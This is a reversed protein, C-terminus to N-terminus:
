NWRSEPRGKMKALLLLTNGPATVGWLSAREHLEQLAEEAFGLSGCISSFVKEPKSHLHIVQALPMWKFIGKKCHLQNQSLTPVCIGAAEWRFWVGTQPRSPQQHGLWSRFKDSSKIPLFSVEIISLFSVPPLLLSWRRRKETGARWNLVMGM